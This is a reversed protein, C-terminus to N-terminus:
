FGMDATVEVFSIQDIAGRSNLLNRDAAIQGRLLSRPTDRKKPSWAVLTELWARATQLLPQSDSTSIHSIEALM